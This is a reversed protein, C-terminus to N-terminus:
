NKDMTEVVKITKLLEEINVPKTLYADAGMELGIEVDEKDDRSTLLIIAIRKDLKETKLLKCFNYGNIIPMMVDLVILDPKQDMAIQLGEAAETTVTIKYGNEKLRSELLRTQVPDDDVVLVSEIKKNM